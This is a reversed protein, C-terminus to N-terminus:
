RAATTRPTNADNAIKRVYENISKMAKSSDDFQDFGGRSRVYGVLYNIRQIDMSAEEIRAQRKEEKEMELREKDVRRSVATNDATDKMYGVAGGLAGGIATGIGPLLMSGISAGMIGFNITDDYMAAEEPMFQTAFLAATGGVVGARGLRGAYTRARSGRGRRDTTGTASRLQSQYVRDEAPSGYTGRLLELRGMLRMDQPDRQLGVRSAAAATAVAAAAATGGAPPTPTPTPTTGRRNIAPIISRAGQTILSMSTILTTLKTSVTGLVALTSIATRDYFNLAREKLNQINNLTEDQTKKAEKNAKVDTKALLALQVLQATQVKGQGLLDAAFDLGFQGTSATRDRLEIIKDFIPMMDQITAAGGRALKNALPEAGLMMRAQLTDRGGILINNLTSLAATIDKGGARGQLQTTIVGLSTSAEDSFFSAAELSDKVSLLTKVLKDNSVLYNDSVILNTKSLKDVSNANNNTIRLLDSNLSNLANVDQGTAIMEETLSDMAKSQIRVGKGFRDIVAERLKQSSVSNLQLINSNKSVERELKQTTTGIKLAERNTKDLRLISDEFRNLPNAFNTFRTVLQSIAQQLNASSRNLIRLENTLDRQSDTLDRNDRPNGVDSSTM